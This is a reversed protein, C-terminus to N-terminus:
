LYLAALILITHIILFYIYGFILVRSWKRHLKKHRNLSGSKYIIYLGFAFFLGGFLYLYILPLWSHTFLSM